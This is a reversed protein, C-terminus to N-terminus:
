SVKIPERTTKDSPWVNELTIEAKKNLEEGVPPKNLYTDPYVEVERRRFFVIESFRLFVFVFRSM